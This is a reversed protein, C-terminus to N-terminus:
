TCAKMFSLAPRIYNVREPNQGSRVICFHPGHGETPFQLGPAKRM